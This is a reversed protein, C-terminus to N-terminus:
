GINRNLTRAIEHGNSPNRRAMRRSLALGLLFVIAIPSLIYVWFM